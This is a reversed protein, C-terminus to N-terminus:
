FILIQDVEKKKRCNKEGRFRRRRREDKRQRRREDKRRWELVTGVELGTTAM